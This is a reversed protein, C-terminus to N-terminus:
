LGKTVGQNLKREEGQTGKEASAAGVNDAANYPHFERPVKSEDYRAVAENLADVDPPQMRFLDAPTSVKAYHRDAIM